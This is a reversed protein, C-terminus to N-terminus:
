LIHKWGGFLKKKFRTLAIDAEQGYGKKKAISYEEVAKNFDQKVYLGEEYMAGLLMHADPFDSLSLHKFALEYDQPIGYGFFYGKGAYFNAKRNGYKLAKLAWDTSLNYDAPVGIGDGYVYALSYTSGPDHLEAGKKYWEIMKDYRKLDSYCNGITTHMNIPVQCYGEVSELFAIAGEKNIKVDNNGNIRSNFSNRLAPMFGAMSAKDFWKIGELSNAEVSNKDYKPLSLIDGWYYVLGVAYMAMANGSDAQQVVAEFAQEHTGKMYPKMADLESFRDAGLVCLASGLETGKKSLELAKLDNEKSDQYGCDGWAYCRALVYYADPEDRQAAMEILRMAEPYKSTDSQCYLLEIGRTLEDSYFKGM